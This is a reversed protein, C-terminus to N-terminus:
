PVDGEAGAWAWEEWKGREERSPFSTRIGVNWVIRRTLERFRELKFERLEFGRGEPKWNEIDPVEFHRGGSTSDSVQSCM